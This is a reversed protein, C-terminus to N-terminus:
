FLGLLSAVIIMAAMALAVVGVGRMAWRRQNPTPGPRDVADDPRAFPLLRQQASHINESLWGANIIIVAGILVLVGAFIAHYWSM